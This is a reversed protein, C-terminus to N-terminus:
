CITGDVINVIKGLKKAMNVDHTVMIITKGSKNLSLLVDMIETATKSDLSGTPEDALIVEPANVIARAIAVRQRQGGSLQKVKRKFLNAIGIEALVDLVRQNMAKIPYKKSFILPLKVNEFVSENMMFMDDQLIFGISENRFTALETSNFNSIDTGNFTYEGSTANDLCGVIHLLTSKGSGSVGMITLTDGQEIQLNVNILAKVQNSKGENYTKTINKLDIINM